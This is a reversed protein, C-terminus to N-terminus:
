APRVSIGDLLLKAIAAAGAELDVQGPHELHRWAFHEIGGFLM